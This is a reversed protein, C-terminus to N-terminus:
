SNALTLGLYSHTQLKGIVNSLDRVPKTLKDVDGNGLPNWNPLKLKDLEGRILKAPHENDDGGSLGFLFQESMAAGMIISALALVSLTSVRGAITNRM